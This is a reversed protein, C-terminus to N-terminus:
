EYKVTILVPIEGGDPGSHELPQSPKGYARDLDDRYFAADGTLAKELGSTILLNEVEEPTMGRAEGIRKFAEWRITSYNRQGKQKGSPNGSEGKKFPKLNKLKVAKTEADV